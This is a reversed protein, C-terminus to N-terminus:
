GVVLFKRSKQGEELQGCSVEWEDFETRKNYGGRGCSGGKSFGKMRQIYVREERCGALREELVGVYDINNVIKGQQEASVAGTEVTRKLSREIAQKLNVLSVIHRSYAIERLLWCQRELPSIGKLDDAFKSEWATHITEASEKGEALGREMIEELLTEVYRATLVENVQESVLVDRNTCMTVAELRIDPTTFRREYISGEFTGFSNKTSPQSM